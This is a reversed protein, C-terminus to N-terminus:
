SAERRSRHVEPASRLGEQAHRAHRRRRSHIRQLHAALRRATFRAGFAFRTLPGFNYASALGVFYLGAVSSEFQRSLAPIGDSSRIMQRLEQHLFDVRRVDVKYGTAAIVHDVDISSRRGSRQHIDIRVRSDRAQVHEVHAGLYMPFKGIVRARM